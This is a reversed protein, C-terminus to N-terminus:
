AATTKVDVLKQFELLIESYHQALFRVVKVNSILKAVYGNVLVLDLHDAGYSKEILKFQRDLNASERQM